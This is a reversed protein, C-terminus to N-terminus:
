RVMIYFQSYFVIKNLYRLQQLEMQLSSDIANDNGNNRLEAILKEKDNLTRQARIRYQELEAKTDALRQKLLECENQVDRRSNELQTREYEAKNLRFSWCSIIM